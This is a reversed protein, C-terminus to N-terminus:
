GEHSPGDYGIKYSNDGAFAMVPILICLFLALIKKM